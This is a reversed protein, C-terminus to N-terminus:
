AGRLSSGAETGAKSTRVAGRRLNQGSASGREIVALGGGQMAVAIRRGDPSPAISEVPQGVDLRSVRRFERPKSWLCVLGDEDASVLMSDDVFTLGSVRAQHARLVRAKDTSPRRATFAFVAIREAGAVALRTSDASWALLRIKGLFGGFQISKGTTMQIVTASGDLHGLAIYRGDPSEAASLIPGVSLPIHTLARKRGPRLLHLGDSSATTLTSSANDWFLATVAGRHRDYAGAPRGDPRFFCLRRGCAAALHRGDPAWAVHEVWSGPSGVAAALGSQTSTPDVIRVMGDQGGSAIRAGDPSFAVALAGGAHDVLPPRVQRARADVVHVGGALTAVVLKDSSHHWALAAVHDPLEARM